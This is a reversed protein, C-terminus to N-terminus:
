PKQSTRRRVERSLKDLRTFDSEPQEMVFVQLRTIDGPSPKDAAYLTQGSAFLGIVAVMVAGTVVRMPKM